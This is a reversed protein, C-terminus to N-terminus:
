RRFFSAMWNGISDFGNFLYLLTGIIILVGALQWMLYTGANGFINEAWNVTGFNRVIWRNYYTVAIGVTTGILFILIKGLM